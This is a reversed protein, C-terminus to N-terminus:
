VIACKVEANILISKVGFEYWVQIFKTEGNKQYAHSDCLPLVGKPTLSASREGIIKAVSARSMGPRILEVLREIEVREINNTEDIYILFAQDETAAAPVTRECAVLGWIAILLKLTAKL